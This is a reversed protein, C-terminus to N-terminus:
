LFLLNEFTEYDLNVADITGSKHNLNQEFEMGFNGLLCFGIEPVFDIKFDSIKLLNLTTGTKAIIEDYRGSEFTSFDLLDTKFGRNTIGNLNIDLFLSLFSHFVGRM